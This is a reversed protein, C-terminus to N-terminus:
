GEHEFANEIGKTERDIPVSVTKFDEKLLCPGSSQPTNAPRQRRVHSVELRIRCGLLFRGHFELAERATAFEVIGIGVFRPPDENSMGFRVYVVQGAEKFFEELDSREVQLSLNFAILTKSGGAMTDSSEDMNKRKKNGKAPRKPPENCANKPGPFKNLNVSERQARSSWPKRRIDYFNRKVKDLLISQAEGILKFASEAGPLKNKDPHLLLALRRYQKKIVIDDAKMDVQLIGYWDLMNGFFLKKETTTATCHVDCVMTMHTMNELTPDLKNAKLALKRASFCDLTTSYPTGDRRMSGIILRVLSSTMVKQAERATAFEVIGFGLFRDDGDKSMGFRVDVVQGAEKFFEDEDEQDSREVKQVSPILDQKNLNVKTDLDDEAPAPAAEVIVSLDYGTSSDKAAKMHKIPDISHVITVSNM